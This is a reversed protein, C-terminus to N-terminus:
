MKQASGVIKSVIQDRIQPKIETQELTSRIYTEVDSDNAEIMISEINIGKPPKQRSTILIKQHQGRISSLLNLMQNRTRYDRCEDMADIVVFTSGFQSACRKILYSWDDMNQSNKITEMSELLDEPITDLSAIMQKLINASINPATQTEKEKYDMYIFAIAIYKGM